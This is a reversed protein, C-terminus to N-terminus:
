IANGKYAVERLAEVNPVEFTKHNSNHKLIGRSKLNSLAGQVTSVGAGVLGALDQQTIGPVTLTSPRGTGADSTRGRQDALRVLERAVRQLVSCARFDARRQDSERLRGSIMSYLLKMADPYEEIIEKFRRGPVAVTLDGSRVTVTASRTGGGIVVMEGVIDGGVRLALLAPEKSSQRTVEAVADFLLFVDDAQAGEAILEKRAKLRTDPRWAVFAELAGPKELGALVLAELANPAEKTLRALVSGQRWSSEKQHKSILQKVKVKNLGPAACM